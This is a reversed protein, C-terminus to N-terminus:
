MCNVDETSQEEKISIGWRGTLFGFRGYDSTRGGKNWVGHHKMCNQHFFPHFLHLRNKDLNEINRTGEGNSTKFALQPDQNKTPPFFRPPFLYLQWSVNRVVLLFSSPSSFSLQVSVPYAKIRKRLFFLVFFFFPFHFPLYGGQGVIKWVGM